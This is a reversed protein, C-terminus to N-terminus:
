RLSKAESKWEIQLASIFSTSVFLSFCVFAIIANTVQTFVTILFASSVIDILAGSFIYYFFRANLRYQKFSAFYLCKLRYFILTNKWERLQLFFCINSVNDFITAFLSMCKLRSLLSYKIVMILFLLFFLLLFRFHTINVLVKAKQM